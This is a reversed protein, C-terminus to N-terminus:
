GAARDALLRDFVARHRAAVRELSYRQEATRRGRAALRERREPDAALAAIAAALADPDGPRVLVDEPDDLVEPIIGSVTGIAPLGSALAQLLAHADHEEHDPLVRAPLVYLDLGRMFGAVEDSPVADRVRLWPSARARAALAERLDGAGLLELEVGAGSARAAAVADVLDLVGKHEALRGCYGVVIPPERRVRGDSPRFVDLDVGVRTAVSIDAAAVGHARRYLRATMESAAIFHDARAIGGRAIADKVRGRAAPYRRYTNKKVGSVLLARPAFAAAAAAVQWFVASWPDYTAYVVQPRHERMGLSPSAMLYQHGFLSLRRYTRTLRDSETLHDPFVLVEARRPTVFRVDLLRAFAEVQRRLGAEAYDHSVILVRPLAGAIAEDM